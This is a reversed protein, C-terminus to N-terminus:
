YNSPNNHAGKKHIPIVKACKLKDPFIGLTISENFICALPRSIDSKVLKLLKLPISFPGTSKGNKLAIIIDEIESHTVPSIFFSNMNRNKLYDLPSKKTRPIESCVQSSVSVFFNNFVNAMKQPDQIIEGNHTLQSISQFSNKSKTNIISKIGTWLNKMNSKNAQFYTDFYNIKSKRNESVVRNRFKKYLEETNKSHSKKLKRLLRDRHKILKQIHPTVWPKSRLKLQKKNVKKLPAHHIVTSHIKDYFGDFQVNINLNQNNLIDDWPLKKFDELFLHESFKSYDYQFLSCNKYAVAVNKIVLFQPFHDSIKTLLNGSLTDFELTNFFINDIIMASHDTVRTPHLIHPLLYRSVMLNIFDNTEPHSDYNVLNINFDGMIILSKNEKQVKQLISSIHNNFNTIDSSPYRYLCCCLLNKSKHNNIEIWITEYDDEIVSLDDRVHHDLRSNVYLVCGGCSSKSPQSYTSYGDMQINMLFDKGVQQKSESIGIIDFPINLMNLQAHLEDFHKSLSRINTHFVSFTQGTLKIKNIENLDYYRSPASLIKMLTLIM